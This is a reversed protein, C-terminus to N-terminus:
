WRAQPTSNIPIEMAKKAPSVGSEDHNIERISAWKGERKARLGTGIFEETSWTGDAYSPKVSRRM